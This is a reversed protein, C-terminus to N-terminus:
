AAEEEKEVLKISIKRKGATVARAPAFVKQIAKPWGLYKAEPISRKTTVYEDPDEEWEDRIVAEAIIMASPDWKINKPTEVDIIYDDQSNDCFTVKGYTEDKAKYAKAISKTYRKNLVSDYITIISKIRKAEDVIDQQILLLQDVTLADLDAPTM